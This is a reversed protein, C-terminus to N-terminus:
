MGFKANFMVAMNNYEADVNNSLGIDAVTTMYRFETGLSVTDNLLFDLGGFLQLGFGTGSSPVTTDADWKGFFVGAGGTLTVVGMPANGVINFAGSLFSPEQTATSDLEHQRYALEIEGHVDGMMEFGFAFLLPSVLTNDLDFTSSGTADSYQVDGGVNYGLGAKFYDASASLSVLSMVICLITKM